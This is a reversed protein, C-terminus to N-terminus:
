QQNAVTSKVCQWPVFETLVVFSGSGLSDNKQRRVVHMALRFKRSKNTRPENIGEVTHYYVSNSYHSLVTM